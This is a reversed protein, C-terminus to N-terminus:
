FGVSFSMVCTHKSKNLTKQQITLSCEIDCLRAYLSCGELPPPTQAGSRQLYGLVTCVTRFESNSATIVM